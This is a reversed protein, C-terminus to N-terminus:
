CVSCHLIPPFATHVLRDHMGRHSGGQFQAALCGCLSQCSMHPMSFTAGKILAQDAHNCPEYEVYLRSSFASRVLYPVGPRQTSPRRRQRLEFCMHIWLFFM